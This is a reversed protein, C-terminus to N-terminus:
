PSTTPPHDITERIARRFIHSEETVLVEVLDRWEKAIAFVVPGDRGLSLLNGGERREGPGM